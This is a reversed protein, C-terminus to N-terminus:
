QLISSERVENGMLVNSTYPKFYSLTFPRDAYEFEVSLHNILGLEVPHNNMEGHISRIHLNFTDTKIPHTRIVSSETFKYRISDFPNMLILKDDIRYVEIANYADSSLVTNFEHIELYENSYRQYNNFQIRIIYYASYGTLIVLAIIAMVVIV